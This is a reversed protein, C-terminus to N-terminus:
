VDAGRATTVDIQGTVAATILAQRRERLVGVARRVRTTLREIPEAADRVKSVLIEQRARPANPVPWSGIDEGRLKVMSLSTGRATSEVVGRVKSGLATECVYEPFISSELHIRYILDPLLLMRVEPGVIAVDGVLSPTNARTVLLDGRCAEAGRDPISDSPLKKNETSHFQGNKVSSLKLVGWEGDAAPGDDCDPSSGQEIGRMFRRLPVSGFEQDLDRILADRAARLRDESLTSLHQLRVVTRDILDTEDDLFEAITHQERLPPVPVPASSMKQPSLEIQNTSGSVFEANMLRQFIDSTLYYYAFRPVLAEDRVRVLTVHSDAIYPRESDPPFCFGVRGLTGTGTSNVIIDHARLFGKLKRPDGPFDHFRTASWLIEGPQNCAQSVVRIPGDDTYIPPTGRRLVSVMRGLTAEAWSDPMPGLISDGSM